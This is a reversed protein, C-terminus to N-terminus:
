VLEHSNRSGVGSHRSRMQQNVYNNWTSCSSSNRFRVIRESPLKPQRRPLDMCLLEHAIESMENLPIFRDIERRDSVGLFDYDFM